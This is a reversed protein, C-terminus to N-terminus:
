RAILAARTAAVNTAPSGRLVICLLAELKRLALLAHELQLDVLVLRSVVMRSDEELFDDPRDVETELGLFPDAAVLPRKPLLVLYLEVFFAPKGSTSIIEDASDKLCCVIAQDGDDTPPSITLPEDASTSLSGSDFRGLLIRGLSLAGGCPGIVLPAHPDLLVIGVM